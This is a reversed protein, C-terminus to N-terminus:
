SSRQSIKPSQALQPLHIRPCFRVENVAGPGFVPRAPPLRRSSLCGGLRWSRLPRPSLRFQSGYRGPETRGDALMPTGGTGDRLFAVASVLCGGLRWSRPLFRLGSHRTALLSHLCPCLPGPSHPRGARRIRPLTPAGGATDQPAHAGRGGYRSAVALRRQRGPETGATRDSRRGHPLPHLPRAEYRGQIPDAPRRSTPREFYRGVGRLGSVPWQGTGCRRALATRRPSGTASRKRGSRGTPPAPM